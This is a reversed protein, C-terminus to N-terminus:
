KKPVGYSICHVAGGYEILLRCDIGYSKYGYSSHTSLALGDSSTNYTPVLARENVFLSNTHTAFELGTAADAMPIRKVSYGLSKFYSVNSELLSYSPHGYPYSSVLLSTSNMFKAYMDIHRTGEYKLPTSTAWRTGGITAKMKAALASASYQPNQSSIWKSTMITGKGDSMLNGGEMDIDTYTYPFARFAAYKKVFADDNPRDYYYNTDVVVVKGAADKAFNPGYDRMWISDIPALYFRVNTLDVGGYYYEYILQNAVYNSSCIVSIKVGSGKLATIMERYTDMVLYTDNCGLLVEDVPAFEAINSLPATQAAAFPIGAVFVLSLLALAYWQTRRLM